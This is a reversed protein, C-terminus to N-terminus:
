LRFQLCIGTTNKKYACTIQLEAHTDKNKQGHKPEFTKINNKIRKNSNNIVITNM